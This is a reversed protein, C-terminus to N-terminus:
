CTTGAISGSESLYVLRTYIKVRAKEGASLSKSYGVYDDYIGDITVRVGTACGLRSIVDVAWGGNPFSSKPTWKYAINPDEYDYSFGSPGWVGPAKIAAITEGLANSNDRLAGISAELQCYKIAL